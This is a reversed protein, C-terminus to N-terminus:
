NNIKDKFYDCLKNDLKIWFEEESSTNLGLKNMIEKELNVKSKRFTEKLFGPYNEELYNITWYGKVYNYLLTQDDVDISNTGYIKKYKTNNILMNITEEKVIKEGIYRDITYLTIGQNLWISLNLSSIYTTILASCVRMRFNKEKNKYKKFIMEGTIHNTNKYIEMPKVLINEVNKEKIIFNTWSALRKRMNIYWYPFILCLMIKRCISLTIFCFKLSSESIYIKIETNQKLGWFTNMDEIISSYTKKILEVEKAHKKEDYIITLEDSIKEERM